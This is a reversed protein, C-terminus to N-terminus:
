MMNKLAKKGLYTPVLFFIIIILTEGVRRKQKTVIFCSSCVHVRTIKPESGKPSFDYYTLEWFGKDQQPQQQHKDNTNNNNKNKIFLHVERRNPRRGLDVRFVLSVLSKRGFISM